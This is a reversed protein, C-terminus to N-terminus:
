IRNGQKFEGKANSYTGVTPAEKVFVNAGPIPQNDTSSLVKGSVQKTQALAPSVGFVVFAVLLTLFRRMIQKNLLKYNTQKNTKQLFVM